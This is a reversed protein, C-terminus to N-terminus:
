RQYLPGITFLMDQYPLPSKNNPLISKKLKYFSAPTLLTSAVDDWGTDYLSLFYARSDFVLKKTTYTL